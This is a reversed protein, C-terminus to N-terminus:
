QTQAALTQVFCQQSKLACCTCLWLITTEVCLFKSTKGFSHQEKLLAPHMSIWCISRCSEGGGGRMCTDTRRCLPRFTPHPPLVLLKRNTPTPCFDTEEDLAWQMTQPKQTRKHLLPCLIAHSSACKCPPPPFCSAEHTVAPTVFVCKLRQKIQSSRGQFLESLASMCVSLRRTDWLVMNPQM